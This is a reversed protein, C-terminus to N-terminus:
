ADDLLFEDIQAKIESRKLPQPPQKHSACNGHKGNQPAEGGEAVAAEVGSVGNPDTGNADGGKAASRQVHELVYAPLLSRAQEEGGEGAPPALVLLCAYCLHDALEIWRQGQEEVAKVPRQGPATEGLSSITINRKWHRATPHQSPMSCLACGATTNWRFCGASAQALRMGRSGIRPENGALTLDAMKDAVGNRTRLPVTPGVRQFESTSRSVDETSNLVLKAGTKGITTVTSPVGRELNLVFTETLRAISTKDMVPATTSGEGVGVSPPVVEQETLPELGLTSTYHIVEQLLHPAFPRVVLLDDIWAAANNAVALKHGAGKAIDEILRISTRTATSALLLASCSLSTATRRLLHTILIRHLDEIRTRASSAGTRPTSPPHLSTFLDQLAQRPTAVSTSHRSLLQDDVSSHKWPVGTFTEDSTRFVDELKLPVFHLDPSGEEEVMMRAAETQDVSNSIVASDDIYLVYIKGVENFRGASNLGRPKGTSGESEAPSSTDVDEGRAKRRRADRNVFATEPRFYQTVTRLLARSSPGGSFAVAINASVNVETNGSGNNIPKVKKSSEGNAPASSSSAVPDSTAASSSAISGAKSAAAVYKALGAGRAYELGPKAKSYFVALACDQCYISDRFIATAPNTKCRVCTTTETSAAAAASSAPDGPQPCPM